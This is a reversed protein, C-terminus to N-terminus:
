PIILRWIDLDFTEPDPIEGVLYTGQANIAPQLFDGLGVQVTAGSALNLVYLAGPIRAVIWDGAAALGTPEALLIEKFTWARRFISSAQFNVYFDDWGVFVGGTPEQIELGRIRLSLAWPNVRVQRVTTERGTADTIQKPLQWKLLAPLVLFGAVSYLIFLIAAVTLVRRGRTSWFKQQFQKRYGNPPKSSEAPTTM